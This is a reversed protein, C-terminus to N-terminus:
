DPFVVMQTGAEEKIPILRYCAIFSSLLRMGCMETATKKRLAHCQGPEQRAEGRSVGGTEGTDATLGSGAWRTSSSRKFGHERPGPPAGHPVLLRSPGRRLGGPPDRNAAHGAM